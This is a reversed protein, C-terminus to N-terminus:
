ESSVSNIYAPCIFTLGKLTIQICLAILFLIGSYSAFHMLHLSAACLSIYIRGKTQTPVYEYYQLQQARREFSSLINKPRKGFYMEFSNVSMSSGANNAAM